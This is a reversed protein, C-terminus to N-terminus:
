GASAYFQAEDDAREKTKLIWLGDGNTCRPIRLGYGIKSHGAGQVSRGNM